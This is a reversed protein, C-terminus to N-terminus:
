VSIFSKEGPGSFLKQIQCQIVFLVGQIACSGIEEDLLGLGEVMSNGLFRDRWGMSQEYFNM